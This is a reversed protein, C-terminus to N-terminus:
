NGVVAALCVEAADLRSVACLEFLVAGVARTPQAFFLSACM